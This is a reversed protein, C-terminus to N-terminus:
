QKEHEKGLPVIGSADDTLWKENMEDPYTVIVDGATNLNLSLKGEEADTQVGNFVVYPSEDYRWAWHLSTLTYEGYPLHAIDTYGNDFIIFTVDIDATATEAKGQLRFVFAQPDNEPSTFGEIKFRRITPLVEAYVYVMKGAYAVEPTPVTVTMKDASLWGELVPKEEGDGVSYYWANLFYEGDGWLELTKPAPPNGGIAVTDTPNGITAGVGRVQYQYYVELGQYYCVVSQDQNASITVTETGNHLAYGPIDLAEDAIRITEQYKAQKKVPEELATQTGNKYHYVTYEYSNRKYYLRLVLGKELGAGDETSTISKVEGRLITDPHATDLTFYEITGSTDAYVTIGAQATHTETNYVTYESGDVSEIYRIVQYLAGEGNKEWSFVAENGSPNTTLTLNQLFLNPSLSTIIGWLDDKQEDTLTIKHQEYAAQALVDKSIGERFSVVVSAALNSIDEGEIKHEFHETLTVKGEGFITALREDVFTHTVKYVIENPIAYVFNFVNESEEDSMIMTHSRIDPFYGMRYEEYLDEGVKATFTKTIGALSMATTPAAVDVYEEGSQFVYRVTYKIPIRSTWKAYIEMDAKVPMTNFDFRKEVDADMYYWGAFIMKKDEDTTSDDGDPNPSPSDLQDGRLNSHNPEDIFSGFLVTQPYLEVIVESGKEPYVNVTYSCTEWKAYLVLGGVPMVTNGDFTFETGDACNPTTYWGVFKIAGPEESSPYPIDSASPEFSAGIPQQYKLTKTLPSLTTGLSVFELYYDNRSYYLSVEGGNNTQLQDGSFGPNSGLQTFGRIDFFDEKKTLYSYKAKISNSLDFYKEYSDVYTADEKDLSELYYNIIYPDKTSTGANESFTIDAPPMFPLYVLVESFYTDADWRQGDTFKEGIATWVASIDSDYKRCIKLFERTKKTECDDTHTHEIQQCARVCDATHAHAVKNCNFTYCSADHKHYEKGCKTYECDGEGHVHRVIECTCGTTHDHEPISCTCTGDGHTHLELGCIVTAQASTASTANNNPNNLRGSYSVGNYDTGQGLYFWEGHIYIFNYITGYRTARIRYIYGNLPGTVRKVLNDYATKPTGSLSAATALANRSYCEMHHNKHETKTCDSFNVVDHVHYTLTCCGGEGGTHVHETLSCCENVHRHEEKDCIIEVIGCAMTHTHAELNCNGSPCADTHTHEPTLCVGNGQFTMTYYKRLYYANVATTGDAAVTVDKDSLVESFEFHENDSASYDNPADVVAGPTVGEVVKFSDLTFGSDDPNELWYIVTYSTTRTEWTASYYVNHETSSIQYGGSAATPYYHSDVATENDDALVRYLTWGTFAYAPRTPTPLVVPTKYRVYCNPAGFAENNDNLDFDVHYYIRDYYIDIAFSGDESIPLDPDYYLPSFGRRPTDYRVGTQGVTENAIRSYTVTEALVYEDDYLNQEYIKVRFTVQQPIFFVHIEVDDTQNEFQISNALVYQKGDYEVYYSDPFARADSEAQETSAKHYGTVYQEQSLEVYPLYGIEPPTAVTGTYYGGKQLTVTFTNAANAGDLGGLSPAATAHRYSYTIVINFADAATGSRSTATDTIPEASLSIDSSVSGAALLREPELEEEQMAVDSSRYVALENSVYKKGDKIVVCRLYAAGDKQISSTILADSIVAYPFVYGSITGWRENKGKVEWKYAINEGLEPSLESFAYLKKGRELIVTDSNECAVTVFGEIYGDDVEQPEVVSQPEETGGEDAAAPLISFPFVNLVSIVALLLSLIKNKNKKM